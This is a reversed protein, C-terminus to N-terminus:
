HKSQPLCKLKTICKKANDCHSSHVSWGRHLNGVFVHPEENGVIGGVSGQVLEYLLQFFISDGRNHSNTLGGIIGGQHHFLSDLNQIPWKVISSRGGVLDHIIPQVQQLQLEPLLGAAADSHVTYCPQPSSRNQHCERQNFTPHLIFISDLENSLLASSREVALLQDVQLFITWLHAQTEFIGVAMAIVAADLLALCQAM